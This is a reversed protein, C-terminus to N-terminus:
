YVIMFLFYCRFDNFDIFCKFYVVNFFPCRIMTHGVDSLTTSNELHAINGAAIIPFVVTRLRQDNDM